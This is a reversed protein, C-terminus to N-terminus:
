SELKRTYDLLREAEAIEKSSAGKQELIAVREAWFERYRPGPKPKTPVPIIVYETGMPAAFKEVGGSYYPPDWVMCKREGPLRGATKDPQWSFRIDAVGDGDPSQEVERLREEAWAEAKGATKFVGIPALRREGDPLMGVSALLWAVGPKKTKKAM